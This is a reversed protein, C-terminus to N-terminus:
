RLDPNDERIGGFQTIGNNRFFTELLDYKGQCFVGMEVQPNSSLNGTCEFCYEMFEIMKGSSDYFIVAHRPLYCFSAYSLHSDSTKSYNFNYLINTLENIQESNLTISENIWATNLSDNRLPNTHDDFSIIRIEKAVNFPYKVLRQKENLKGNEYCKDDTSQQNYDWGDSRCITRRCQVFLMIGFSFLLLVSIRKLPKM